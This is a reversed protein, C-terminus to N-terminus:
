VLMINSCTHFARPRPMKEYLFRKFVGKPSHTLIKDGFYKQHREFTPSVLCRLIHMTVSEITTKAGNGQKLGLGRVGWAESLFSDLRNMLDEVGVAAGQGGHPVLALHQHDAELSLGDQLHHAVAGNGLLPLPLLPVELKGLLTM